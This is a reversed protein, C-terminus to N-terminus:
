NQRNKGEQLDEQNPHKKFVEVVLEAKRLREERRCRWIPQANTNSLFDEERSSPNTKKTRPGKRKNNGNAGSRRPGGKQEEIESRAPRRFRYKREQRAFRKTWFTGTKKRDRM